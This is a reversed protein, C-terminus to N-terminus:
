SRVGAGRRILRRERAMRYVGEYRELWGPFDFGRELRARVARLEPWGGFLFIWAAEPTAPEFSAHPAGGHGLGHTHPMLAVIWPM